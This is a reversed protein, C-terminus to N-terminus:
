FSYSLPSLVSSKRKTREKRKKPGDLFMTDRTRKRVKASIVQFLQTDQLEAVMRRWNKMGAVELDAEIKKM